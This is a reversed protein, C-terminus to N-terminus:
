PITVPQAPWSTSGTQEDVVVASAFKGIAEAFSQFQAVTFTHFAGSADPWALSATGNLFEGTALISAVESTLDDQVPPTISYTGNLAPAGTSVIQLTTPPRAAALAAQWAAVQGSTAASDGVRMDGAYISGDVASIWYSAMVLGAGGQSSLGM